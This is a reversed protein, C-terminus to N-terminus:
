SLLSREDRLPGRAGFLTVNETPWKSEISRQRENRGKMRTVWRTDDCEISELSCQWSLVVYTVLSISILALAMTENKENLFAFADM